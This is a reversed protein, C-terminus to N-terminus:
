LAQPKKMPEFDAGSKKTRPVPVAPPRPLQEGAKLLVLKVEPMPEPKPAEEVGQKRLDRHIVGLMSYRGRTMTKGVDSFGREFASKPAEALVMPPPLNVTKM